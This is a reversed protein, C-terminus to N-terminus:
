EEDPPEVELILEAKRDLTFRAFVFNQNFHEGLVSRPVSEGLSKYILYTDIGTQYRYGVAEFDPTKTMNRGVTLKRWTYPRALHTKDFDFVYAAYLGTGQGKMTLVPGQGTLSFTGRTTDAQWEPLTLPVIRVLPDDERKRPKRKRGKQAAQSFDAKYGAIEYGARDQILEFYPSLALSSTYEIEGEQDEMEEPGIISDAALLISEDVTWLLQREIQWGDTLPLMMESYIRECNKEECLSTWGGAPLLVKGKWRAQVPWEGQILPFGACDIEWRYRSEEAPLVAAAAGCTWNDPSRLIALPFVESFCAADEANKSKRAAYEETQLHFTSGYLAATKKGEPNEEIFADAIWKALYRNQPLKIQLLADSIGDLIQRYTKEPSIEASPSTEDFYFGGGSRMLRLRVMLAKELRKQAAATLFKRSDSDALKL